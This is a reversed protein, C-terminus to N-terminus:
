VEVAVGASGPPRGHKALSTNHTMLLIFLYLCSADLMVPALDHSSSASQRLQFQAPLLATGQLTPRPSPLGGLRKRHSCPDYQAGRLSQGSRGDRCFRMRTNLRDTFPPAPKILTSQIPQEILRTGSLWAFQAIRLDFFYDHARQLAFRGSGGMPRGTRHCLGCAYVLGCDAADPAGKRQGRM